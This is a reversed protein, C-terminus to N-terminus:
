SLSDFRKTVWCVGIKTLTMELARIDSEKRIKLDGAKLCAESLEEPLLTTPYCVEDKGGWNFDVLILKERDCLINADRLDGHVWGRDHFSKVLKRAAVAWKERRKNRGLANTISGASVYDMAITIWNGSLKQYGLIRPANGKMVCFTHLEICYRRTFKVVTEKDGDEGRVVAIYM